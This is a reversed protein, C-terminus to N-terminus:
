SAGPGDDLSVERWEQMLPFYLAARIPEPGYRRLLAAYRALQPRYREVESALFEERAGGEHLSTKYDVIWREGNADIFTRDVVIHEVRGNVVGSLRLESAASAHAQLLWRGREDALAAQLAQRIRAGAAAHEAAPVGMGALWLAYDCAGRQADQRADRQASQHVDEPASVSYRQLEAHVITGVARATAGVWSYEPRLTVDVSASEVRAVEAMPQADSFQWDSALAWFHTPAASHSARASHAAVDQNAAAAADGKEAAGTAADTEHAAGGPNLAALFDQELAPWLVALPSGARPAPGEDGLQVQGLLHLASRARTTAVYWLRVQELRLRESRLRRILGGVGGKVKVGLERAIPALLLESEDTDGPLDIWNLLPETDGRPRAGLGALLVVDWELGKAGHVTLMEIAGPEANPRSYIEDIRHTLAEGVRLSSEADAAIAAIFDAADRLDREDQCCAPGGLRYWCHRTRLWLPEGREDGELAPRLAAAVRLLEPADHRQLAGWV